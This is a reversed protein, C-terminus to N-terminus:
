KIYATLVTRSSLESQGDNSDTNFTEQHAIRAAKIGRENKCTWRLAGGKNPRISVGLYPFESM